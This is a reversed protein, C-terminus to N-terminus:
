SKSKVVRVLTFNKDKSLPKSETIEVEDGIKATNGEDHAKFKKAINIYKQYKPHKVFRSVSVVITKDMKDSTVVGKLVKSKKTTEQTKM